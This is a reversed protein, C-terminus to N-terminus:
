RSHTSYANEDANKHTHRRMRLLLKLYALGFKFLRAHSRGAGRPMYHFPVELIRGGSAHIRVLIEELIDFDRSHFTLNSLAERRYMRFGSSLDKVDISLVLAFTRNLILSLMRRFRSMEAKGGAIYRSAILMEADNRRRWFEELFSPRHSLDADMTAIFDARSAALGELLAGGYGRERQQIVRVGRRACAEATGDKSGADVVLIEADIGIFALTEKLAPLM